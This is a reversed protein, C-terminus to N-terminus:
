LRQIDSKNDEDGVTEYALCIGTNTKKKNKGKGEIEEYGEEESEEYGDERLQWIKKLLKWIM